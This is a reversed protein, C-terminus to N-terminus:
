LLPDLFWPFFIRGEL